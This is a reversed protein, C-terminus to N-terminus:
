LHAEISEPTVETLASIGALRHFRELTYAYTRRTASSHNIAECRRLFATVADALAESMPVRGAIWRVSSPGASWRPRRPWAGAETPTLLRRMLSRRTATETRMRCSPFGDLYDFREIKHLVIKRLHQGYPWSLFPEVPSPPM